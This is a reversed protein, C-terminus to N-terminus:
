PFVCLPKYGDFTIENASFYKDDQFILVVGRLSNAESFISSESSIVWSERDKELLVSADLGEEDLVMRIQEKSMSPDLKECYFPYRVLSPHTFMYIFLIAKYSLFLVVVASIVAILINRVSFIKKRRSGTQNATPKSKM